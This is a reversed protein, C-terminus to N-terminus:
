LGVPDLARRTWNTNEDHSNVNGDMRGVNPTLIPAYHAIPLTVQMETSDFATTLM